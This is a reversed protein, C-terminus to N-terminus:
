KNSGIPLKLLNGMKKNWESPYFQGFGSHPFFTLEGFYIKNDVYYFDVRVFPFDQSLKKALRLMEDYKKPKEVPTSSKPMEQLGNFEMHNWETDFFDITANETRDQILQCYTPQGNFCYIKYDTLSDRNDDEKLFSECIIRPKIDQYVWEGNRLYYKDRLWRRMKKYETKWDMNYKDKCIINYGSGHTGKLVFSKPLKDLDIDDVSEYVALLENLYERGIEKGVLQRVKYKDVCITARSDHWYLKLWQLKESFEVPDTLNLEKRLNKRFKKKILNKKSILNKYYFEKVIDNVYLLIDSKKLYSKLSM